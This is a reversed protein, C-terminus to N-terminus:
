WHVKKTVVDGEYYDGKDSMDGLKLNPNKGYRLNEELLQKAQEQTVAQGKKPHWMGQHGTWPCYWGGPGSAGGQGLCPCNRGWGQQAFLNPAILIFAMVMALGILLRKM